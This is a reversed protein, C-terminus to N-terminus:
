YAIVCHQRATGHAPPQKLRRALDNAM